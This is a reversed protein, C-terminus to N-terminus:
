SLATGNSTRRLEVHQFRDHVSENEYAAVGVPGDGTLLGMTRATVLADARTKVGLKTYLHAVHTKVTNPSIFLLQGIEAKSCRMALLRLVDAERQTLTIWGEDSSVTTYSVVLLPQDLLFHCVSTKRDQGREAAEHERLHEWANDLLEGVRPPGVPHVEAVGVHIRFGDVVACDYSRLRAQLSSVIRALNDFGENNVLIAFDDRGVRGVM